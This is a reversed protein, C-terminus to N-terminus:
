GGGITGHGRDGADALTVLMARTVDLNTRQATTLGTKEVADIEAVFQKALGTLAAFGAPSYDNLRDSYKGGATAEDLGLSTALEPMLGYIAASQRALLEDVTEAFAPTSLTLALGIGAARFLTRVNM